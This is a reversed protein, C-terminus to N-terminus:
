TRRAAWTRGTCRGGPTTAGGVTTGTPRRTEGYLSFVPLGTTSDIADGVRGERDTSLGHEPSLLRVLEVGPAQWLLDITRAGSASLGTRNTLVAIRAGRLREYDSDVLADIGLRVKAACSTLMVVLLAAGTWILGSGSVAKGRM